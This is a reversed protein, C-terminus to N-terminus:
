RKSNGNEKIEEAKFIRNGMAKLTLKYNGGIRM